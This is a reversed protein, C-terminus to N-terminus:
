KKLWLLLTFVLLAMSIAVLGWTLWYLKETLKVLRKHNVEHEVAVRGMLSATRKLAHNLREEPHDQAYRTPNTVERYVDHVLQWIPKQLDEKAERETLKDIAENAQRSPFVVRDEFEM